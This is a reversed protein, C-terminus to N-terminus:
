PKVTNAEFHATIRERCNNAAVVECHLIWESASRNRKGYNCSSCCPVVNSKIYGHSNQVRDLGNGGIAISSCYFCPQQRLSNFLDETLDFVLGYLDAKKKYGKFKNQNRKEQKM